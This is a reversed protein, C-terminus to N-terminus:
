MGSGFVAGRIITVSMGYKTLDPSGCHRCTILMTIM